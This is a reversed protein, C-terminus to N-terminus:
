LPLERRFRPGKSRETYAGMIPRLDLFFHHQTVGYTSPISSPGFKWCTWYYPWPWSSPSPTHATIQQWINWILPQSHACCLDPSVTARNDCDLLFLPDSGPGITARSYLRPHDVFRLISSWQCILEWDM